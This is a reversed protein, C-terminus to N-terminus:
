VGSIMHLVSAHSLRSTQTHTGTFTQRNIVFFISLLLLSPSASAVFKTDSSTIDLENHNTSM